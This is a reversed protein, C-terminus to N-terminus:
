TDAQIEAFARELLRAFDRQRREDMEFSLGVAWTAPDTKNEKIWVIRARCEPYVSEYIQITFEVTSGIKPEGSVVVQFGGASVDEPVLPFDSLSPAEILVPIM